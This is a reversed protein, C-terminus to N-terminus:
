KKSGGTRRTLTWKVTTTGSGSVQDGNAAPPPGDTFVKTGSLRNSNKPDRIGWTAPVGGITADTADDKPPTSKFDISPRRKDPFASDLDVFRPRIPDDKEFVDNLLRVALRHYNQEFPLQADIAKLMEENTQKGEVAKWVAGIAQPGKEQEMFLPWAYEVYPYDGTGTDISRDSNLMQPFLFKHILASTKGRNM